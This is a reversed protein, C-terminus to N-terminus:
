NFLHSRQHFSMRVVSLRSLQTLLSCAESYPGRGSCCTVRLLCKSVEVMITPLVLQQHSTVVSKCFLLRRVASRM